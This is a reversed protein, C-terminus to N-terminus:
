FDTVSIFPHHHHIFPGSSYVSETSFSQCDIRRKVEFFVWNCRQGCGLIFRATEQYFVFIWIFRLLYRCFLLFFRCCRAFFFIELAGLSSFFFGEVFYPLFRNSSFFFLPSLLLLFPSSLNHRASYPTRWHSCVHCQQGDDVGANLEWSNAM